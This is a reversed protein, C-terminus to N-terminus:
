VGADLSAETQHSGQAVNDRPYSHRVGIRGEADETGNADGAEAASETDRCDGVYAELHKNSCQIM